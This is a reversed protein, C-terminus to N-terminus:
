RDGPRWGGRILADRMLAVGQAPHQRVHIGTLRVTEYEESAYAAHKEIDRAWQRRGTRHHDGEIEVLVRYRRFRMDAIGLLRGHANRIEVDLEPEPLGADDCNLRGDTELPSMSGVRIRAFAARLRGAGPRRGAELAGRLDDLTAQRLEPRPAGREDRPVKVIADGLRVLERESLEAGLMAWASAPSAVRLGDVDRISGFGPALARGRVGRGRPARQPAFVAVELDGDHPVPLGLIVAATRGAFFARPSMVAAYTRADRMVRARAARDQAFPSDDVGRPTKRVRRRTGHYPAELDRARLRRASAGASRAHAYGFSDGLTPPLEEPPVPM